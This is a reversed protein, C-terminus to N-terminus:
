EDTEGEELEHQRFMEKLEEWYKNEMQDIFSDFLESSGEGMVSNFDNEIDNIDVDAIMPEGFFTCCFRVQKISRDTNLSLTESYHVTLNKSLQKQIDM